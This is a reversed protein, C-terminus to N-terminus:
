FAKLNEIMSALYPEYERWEESSGQYMKQRVQTASATRVARNTKHFELCQPEWDLEIYDLLKRTEYEQNLTLSEYKLDYLREPFKERWFAMLDVYMKYYESVDHLNNSYGLGTANFFIKFISWCTARADRTVHVIKADPFANLIFGVWRFNSPMKDTIFPESVHQESLGSLYNERIDDQHNTNYNFSRWSTQQICENLLELEGAGHIKSHSALIQEVLTTGSRPMGIIFIPRKTQNKDPNEFSVPAPTQGMFPTKIKAFLTRDSAIDYKLEAKRLRNGELLFSIAKDPERTDGYAKGLAFNLRRQDQTSLGNQEVQDRMQQFQLDDTEYKKVTSLNSHAEAFKPNIALANTYSTIAKDVEGLEKFANGMNNHAEAFEPHNNISKAYSDIAGDIDGLERQANGLNNYADAYDPKIQLARNFSEVAEIHKGLSKLAVGLNNHAEAFEPDIKIAKTYSEVAQTRRGLGANVAGLVNHLVVTMPHAAVLLKGLKLADTLRGQKYLSILSNIQEDSPSQGSHAPSPASQNLSKLGEIARNDTPAKALIDRYINAARDTTGSKAFREAKRILQDVSFSM